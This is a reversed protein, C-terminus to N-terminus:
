DSVEALGYINDTVYGHMDMIDESIGAHRYIRLCIDRFTGTEETLYGQVDM